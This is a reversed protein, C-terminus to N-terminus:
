MSSKHCPLFYTGHDRMGPLIYMEFSCMCPAPIRRNSRVIDKFGLVPCRDPELVIESIRIKIVLRSDSFVAMGSSCQLASFQAAAGLEPSCSPHSNNAKKLFCASAAVPSISPLMCHHDFVTRLQLFRCEPCDYIQGNSKNRLRKVQAM